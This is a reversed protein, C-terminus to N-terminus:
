MYSTIDSPYKFLFTCKHGSACIPINQVLDSPLKSTPFFFVEWFMNHCGRIATVKCANETVISTRVFVIATFLNNSM